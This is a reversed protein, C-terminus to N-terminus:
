IKALKPTKARDLWLGYLIGLATLVFALSFVVNANSFSFLLYGLFPCIVGRIGVLALNMSSYAFSEEKRSFVAGSMNWSLDCGSRMAGYFLYAPYLWFIGFNSALLLGFFLCTFFNVYCNLLYLSKRAQFKAWFPATAIFSIGKCFSFAMALKTYSLKLDQKFFLPLISQSGVIGAGGIFFLILYHSFHPNTKLLSWGKSLPDVFLTHLNLPPKTTKSAVVDIKMKICSILLISLMKLLAAATFLWKWISPEADIWHAIILPLFIMIGFQISSGRSVILSMKPVDFQNKLIEVWAPYSARMTIMFLAFSALYYWVNNIFPFFFCPLCGIFTNIFLYLRTRHPNNHLLTSAYFSFLSTIPKLSAMIMLQFPTAGLHTSIIFILFTFLVEQPGSVISNLLYLSSRSTM